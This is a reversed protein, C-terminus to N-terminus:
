SKNQVDFTLESGERGSLLNPYQGFDYIHGTNKSIETTWTGDRPMYITFMIAFRREKGKGHFGSRVYINAMKPKSCAEEDSGKEGIGLGSSLEGKANIAAYPQCGGNIYWYPQYKKYLRGTVNAPIREPMGEIKDYPVRPIKDAASTDNNGKAADSETGNKALAAQTVVLTLGIILAILSRPALMDHPQHSIVM